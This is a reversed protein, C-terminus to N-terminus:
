LMLLKENIKENWNDSLEGSISREKKISVRIDEIVSDMDSQEM